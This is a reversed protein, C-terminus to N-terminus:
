AGEANHSIHSVISKKLVWSPITHEDGTLSVPSVVKCKIWCSRGRRFTEKGKEDVKKKKRRGTTRFILGKVEMLTGAPLHMWGWTSTINKQNRYDMFKEFSVNDIIVTDAPKLFAM